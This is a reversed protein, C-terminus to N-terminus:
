AVTLLGFLNGSAGIGGKDVWVRWGTGASVGIGLYLDGTDLNVGIPVNIGVGPLGTPISVIITIGKM